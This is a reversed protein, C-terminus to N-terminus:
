VLETVLIAKGSTGFSDIIGTYSSIEIVTNNTTVKYTYSTASATAALKIYQTAGECHIIAKKRNANAALLTLNSGTSTILTVTGTSAPTPTSTVPVPTARLQADTLPGTVAVSGSVAVTGDVTLSGGNDSVPFPGTGANATVTGSVPVPTARLEADTVPGVVEDTFVSM